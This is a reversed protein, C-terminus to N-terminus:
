SVSKPSSRILTDGFESVGRLQETHHDVYVAETIATSSHGLYRSVELLSKGGDLALTAYTHRLLHPTVKIEIGARQGAIEMANEVASINPKRGNISVVPHHDKTRDLGALHEKLTPGMLLPAKPRGKMRAGKPNRQVAAMFNLTGDILNVDRWLLELVASPRQGTALMLLAFTYHWQVQGKSLTYVLRHADDKSLHGPKPAGGLGSVDIYPPTDILGERHALNVAARVTTLVRKVSSPKLGEVLAHDRYERMAATLGHLPTNSLHQVKEWAWFQTKQQILKRIHAVKYYEWLDGLTALSISEEVEALFRCLYGAAEAEDEMGTSVRRTKGEETWVIHLYPRGAVPRIRYEIDDQV